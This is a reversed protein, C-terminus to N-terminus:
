SPFNFGCQDCFKAGTRNASGCRPCAVTASSVATAAPASSPPVGEAEPKTSRRRRGNWVWAVGIVVAAVLLAAILGYWEEASLGLLPAPVSSTVNLEASGFAQIGLSDTAQATISYHGLATPTCTLRTANISSCGPPLGNYAYSLAGVGGSATLTLLVSAGLTVSSPTAVFQTIAVHPAVSVSIANSVGTDGKSDVVTVSMSFSGGATPRCTLVATDASACGTPLGNWIYHYTGTGGSVSVLTLFPEGAELTLSPPATAAPRVALSPFVSGSVGSPVGGPSGIQVELNYGQPIDTAYEILYFPQDSTAGGGANNRDPSLLLSSAGIWPAFAYVSAGQNVNLYLGLGDAIREAMNYLLARHAVTCGPAACIDAADILTVMDSYATGQCATTIVPDSAPGSCSSTYASILVAADHYYPQLYGNPLYFPDAYDSPDFFDPGWGLSVEAPFPATGLRVGYTQGLVTDWPVSVVSPQIAGQSVSRIAQAWEGFDTVESPNTAPLPFTCPSTTTCAAGVAGDGQTQSWWWAAGGVDHPNTDANTLQWSINTPYDDGMGVPIAGGMSFCYLIGGIICDNKEASEHPYTTLLFQRFNLDQLADSTLTATAGLYGSAASQNYLMEVVGYLESISPGVIYNLQGDRAESLMTSGNGGGGSADILDADGAALAALGPGASLEFHAVVSPIYSPPRGGKTPGPLCGEQRGGQCTTGGWDPNAKLTYGTQNNFSVLYYPGSGYAHYRLATNPVVGPNFWWAGQSQIFGDWGTPGPVPNPNGPSGPPAPYCTTGNTWGPLGMGESAEWSCSAVAWNTTSEVFELFEPWPRGSAATNLTICGNGLLGNKMAATCYLTSNVTMANLINAPTNNYPAHWGADWSANATPPLLAQCLVFAEFAQPWLANGLACAKAFSFAVDNPYVSATAGTTGNYFTANPNIVFTWNDGSTLTSGYMRVCQASGPVCTALDPVFDSPALGTQSGNYVILTQYLNQLIAGDTPDAAVGPDLTLNSSTGYFYTQYVVLTGNHPSTPLPAIPTAVPSAVFITFTYNNWTTASASLYPNVDPLSFNLTYSGEPTSNSWSLTAASLNLGSGLITSINVYPQAAAGVIYSPTELSWQPDTPLNTAWNSVQVWGNPALVAQASTTTSSNAVINGQVQAENGLADNSYSDLVAFRLISGLNDHVNASSDTARAYVLYIGPNAYTHTAPNSTVTSTSGDGWWWTTQVPAVGAITATFNVPMGALTTVNSSTVSLDHAVPSALPALRDHPSTGLISSPHALPGSPSSAGGNLVAPALTVSVFAIVVLLPVVGGRM